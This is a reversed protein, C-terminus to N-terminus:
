YNEWTLELAYKILFFGLMMFTLTISIGILAFVM